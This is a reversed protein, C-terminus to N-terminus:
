NNELQYIDKLIKKGITDYQESTVKGDIDSFYNVPEGFTVVVKGRFKYKASIFVPIIPSNSKYSIMAIGPKSNDENYETVRTGEPFIGLVEDKNLIKIATKIASLTVGQRDVPFAGVKVLIYNLLKNQFLEKKAMFKIQRKTFCALIVPDLMSVHNSCLICRGTTNNFNDVNKLEIKFAISLLPKLITSLTSYLM